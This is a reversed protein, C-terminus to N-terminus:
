AGPGLGLYRGIRWYIQNHVSRRGPLAFNSIEYHEYGRSKLAEIVWLYMEAEADEGPLALEGRAHLDGFPTGDEIILSYCSLHEPALAVVEGITSQWMDMSQKPLAFML